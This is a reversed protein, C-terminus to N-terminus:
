HPTTPTQMPQQQPNQGFSSGFSSQGFSSQGFPSQQNMQNVPTGPNTGGAVGGGAMFVKPNYPGNILGGRDTTPDYVFYWENYHTKKNFEKLGESENVSAVGLVAGGGFTQGSLPSPNSSSGSSGSSGSGSSSPSGTNGGSTPSSGGPGSSPNQGFSSQGFSSGQGFSSQGFSSQGFSSQGFSSQGFSSQGFSSQGFSSQGPATNQGFSSTQGPNNMQSVPTGVNSQNLKVDGVHLLRWKGDKAMPDNYRKRLFRINNTNELQELSTPYTGFKKFYKKIARSYQAGRHIMEDERQRQIDRKMSPASFALLAIAAISLMFIIMLLVYGSTRQRSPRYQFFGFHM